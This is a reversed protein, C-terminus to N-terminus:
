GAIGARERAWAIVRLTGEPGDRWYEKPESGDLVVIRYRDHLRERVADLAEQGRITLVPGSGSSPSVYGAGPIELTQVEENFRHSAPLSDVELDVTPFGETYDPEYLEPFLERYPAWMEKAQETTMEGERVANGLDMLLLDAEPLFLGYTDYPEDYQCFVVYPADM